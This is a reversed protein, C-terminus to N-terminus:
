HLTAHAHYQTHAAGDFTEDYLQHQTCTNHGNRNMTHGNLHKINITHDNSQRPNMRNATPKMAQISNMSHSRYLNSTFPMHNANPNSGNYNHNHTAIPHRPQMTNNRNHNSPIQFHKLQLEKPLPPLEINNFQTNTFQPIPKANSYRITASQQHNTHHMSNGGFANNNSYENIHNIQSIQTNSHNNSTPYPQMTSNPPYSPPAVPFNTNKYPYVASNSRQNLSQLNWSM